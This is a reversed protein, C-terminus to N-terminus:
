RHLSDSRELFVLDSLLNKVRSKSLAQDRAHDISTTVLVQRDFELPMTPLDNLCSKDAEINNSFRCVLEVFVSRHIAERYPSSESQMPEITDRRALSVRARAAQQGCRWRLEGADLPVRM